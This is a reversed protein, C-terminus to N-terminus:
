KETKGVCPAEVCRCLFILLYKCFTYFLFIYFLQSLLCGIACLCVSVWLPLLACVCLTGACSSVRSCESCDICSVHRVAAAYDSVTNCGSADVDSTRRHISIIHRGEIIRLKSHILFVCEDVSLFECDTVPETKNM